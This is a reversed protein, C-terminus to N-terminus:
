ADGQHRVDPESCRLALLSLTVYYDAIETVSYKGKPSYWHSVGTCMELLAFVALRPQDVQFSGDAVGASVVDLWLREYEDRLDLVQQQAEGSLARIEADTVKALSARNCHFDIHIKILSSMQSVPDGPKGLAENAPGLLSELGDLMFSLLLEDKTVMYHYLSAVSINAERAIERIGTAAFGKAGFLRIAASKVRDETSPEGIIQM